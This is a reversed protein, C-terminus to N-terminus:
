TKREYVIVSGAITTKRFYNNDIYNSLEPLRQRNNIGDVAWAKTNEFIYKPKKARIDQLVELRKDITNAVFPLDFRTPNLRDVFMYMMPEDALFLVYDSSSTNENVFKQVSLIYSKQAPSVSVHGLRPISNTEVLAGPLNLIKLYHPRFILLVRLLSLIFVLIVIKSLIKSKSNSKRQLKLLKNVYIGAILIIPSFTFFFTGMRGILLAYLFIGYLCLLGIILDNRDFKRLIFRLALYLTSGIYFLLQWYLLVSQSLLFKIWTLAQFNRPYLDLPNPFKQGNPLNVGSFSLLVDKTVLFYSTLWGEKGAWFVFLSVSLLIGSLAFLIKKVAQQLNSSFTLLCVYYLFIIGFSYIGTDESILFTVVGFVGLFFDWLLRKSSYSKILFFIELFVLGLRINIGPMILISLLIIFKIVRSIRLEKVVLWVMFAGLITSITLFILRVMFASPGFLKFVLFVPYAFLPGYSIYMDRYMLKGHLMHNAWAAFQGEDILNLDGFYPTVFLLSGFIIPLLIILLIEILAIKKKIKAVYVM